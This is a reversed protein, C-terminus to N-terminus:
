MPSFDEPTNDANIPHEAPLFINFYFDFQGGPTISGVDGIRIGHERYEAPQHQPDPIYLPLGRRMHLLQSCYTESE